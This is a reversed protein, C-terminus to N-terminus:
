PNGGPRTTDETAPYRCGTRTLRVFKFSLVVFRWGQILLSQQKRKESPTIVYQM